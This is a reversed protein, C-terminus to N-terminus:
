ALRVHWQQDDKIAVRQEYDWTLIETQMDCIENKHFQEGIHGFYYKTESWAPREVASGRRTKEAAKKICNIAINKKM